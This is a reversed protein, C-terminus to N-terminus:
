ANKFEQVVEKGLPDVHSGQGCQSSTQIIFNLLPIEKARGPEKLHMPVWYLDIGIGSRVVDLCSSFQPFLRFFQGPHRISRYNM